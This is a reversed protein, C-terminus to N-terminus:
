FSFITKPGVTTRSDISYFGYACRTSNIALFRNTCDNRTCSRVQHQIGSGEIAASNAMSRIGNQDASFLRRETTNKKSIFCGAAPNM